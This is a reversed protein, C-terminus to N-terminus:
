YYSLMPGNTIVNKLDTKTANIRGMIDIVAASGAGGSGITIKPPPTPDRVEAM